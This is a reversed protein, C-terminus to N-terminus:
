QAAFPHSLPVPDHDNLLLFHDGVPLTLWTKIILGHEIACPSSAAASTHPRAHRQQHRLSVHVRAFPRLGRVARMSAAATKTPTMKVVASITLPLFCRQGGALM